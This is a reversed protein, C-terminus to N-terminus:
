SMTVSELLAVIHLHLNFAGDNCFNGFILSREFVHIKNQIWEIIQFESLFLSKLGSVPLCGLVDYSQVLLVDIFVSKSM